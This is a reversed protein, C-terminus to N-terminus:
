SNWEQPAREFVVAAMRLLQPNSSVSLLRFSKVVVPGGTGCLVAEPWLVQQRAVGFACGEHPLSFLM